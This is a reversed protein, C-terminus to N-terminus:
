ELQTKEHYLQALHSKIKSRKIIISKKDKSLGEVSERLQTPSEIKKLKEILDEYYQSEIMKKMEADDDQLNYFCGYGQIQKKGYTSFYIYKFQEYTLFTGTLDKSKTLYKFLEFYTDRDNVADSIVSYGIELADINKKNVKEGILLLKWVKQLLIEFDSFLRKLEKVGSSYDYSYSNIINKEDNLNNLKILVHYHPHFVDGKYTIELSRFAGEYGYKTFDIGKIKILGKLYRTLYSFSKAMINLTNELDSGAVNPLTFVVHYLNDHKLLEPIFRDMRVAQKVMKCHSCFKDNCHYTYLLDKVNQKVYHDIAWFQNCTKVAMTLRSFRDQRTEYFMAKYYDVIWENVESRELSTSFFDPSVTLDHHTITM